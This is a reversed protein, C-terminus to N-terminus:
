RIIKVQAINKSLYEGKKDDYKKVAPYLFPHPRTGLKSMKRAILFAVEEVNKVKLIRRVWDYLASVPPFHPRTGFEVYPAYKKAVGGVGIRGVIENENAVVEHTIGSRLMDSAGSPANIRAETEAYSSCKEIADYACKWVVDRVKRFIQKDYAFEVTKM